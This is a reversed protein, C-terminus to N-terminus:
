NSLVNRPFFRASMSRQMEQGDVTNEALLTVEIAALDTWAGDEDLQDVITGDNLVARVQFDIVDAAVNLPSDDDANFGLTLLGDDLTYRREELMYLRCQQKVKYSNAWANTNGRELYDSTDGDDDYLFWEGWRKVPNYVYAWVEGGRADRYDRWLDINDPYGNGDDDALPACGQPPDDTDKAVRLSDVAGGAFIRKCLPLVEGLLNRRVILTDPAGADGDVVELAYFDGPLREGAQRVDIGILDLAGRLNQNLETRNVDNAYLERSSLCLSLVSGVVIGTITMAILVEVLTFGHANACNRSCRSSRSSSRTM